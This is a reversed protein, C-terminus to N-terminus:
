KDKRFILVEGEANIHLYFDYVNSDYVLDILEDRFYIPESEDEWDNSWEGDTDMFEDMQIKEKQSDTPKKVFDHITPETNRQKKM